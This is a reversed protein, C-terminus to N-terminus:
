ISVQKFGSYIFVGRWVPREDIVDSTIRATGVQPSSGDVTEAWDSGLNSVVLQFITDFADRVATWNAGSPESERIYTVEITYDYLIVPGALGASAAYKQGRGVLYQFFNIETEEFLKAVESESTETIEYPYAKDTIAQITANDFINTKWAAEVQASTSM